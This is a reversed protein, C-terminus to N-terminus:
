RFKSLIKRVNKHRIYKGYKIGRGEIFEKLLKDRSLFQKTPFRIALIDINRNKAIDQCLVEMRKPVSLRTQYFIMRHENAQWERDMAYYEDQDSGEVFQRIILM